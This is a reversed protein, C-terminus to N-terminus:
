MQLRRRSNARRACVARDRRSAQPHTHRRREEKGRAGARKDRAHLETEIASRKPTWYVRIRYLNAAGHRRRQNAVGGSCACPACMMFADRPRNHTSTRVPLTMLASSSSLEHAPIILAMGEHHKSTISFVV